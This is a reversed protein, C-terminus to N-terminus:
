KCLTSSFQKTMSLPKSGKKKLFMPQKPHKNPDM